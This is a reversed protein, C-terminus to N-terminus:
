YSSRYRINETMPLVKRIAKVERRSHSRTRTCNSTSFADAASDDSALFRHDVFVSTAYIIYESGTTLLLGCDTLPDIGTRIVLTDTAMGGKFGETVVVTYENVYRPGFARVQDISSLSDVLAQDRRLPKKLDAGIVKGLIVLQSSGVANMVSPLPKCDCAFSMTTGFGLCLVTSIVSALVPRNISISSINM